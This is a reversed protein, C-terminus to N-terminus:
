KRAGPRIPSVPDQVTPERSSMGEPARRWKRTVGTPGKPVAPRGITEGQFVLQDQYCGGAKPQAGAGRRTHVSPGARAGGRKPRAGPGHPATQRRRQVVSLGVSASPCRCHFGVRAGRGWVGRMLVPHCSSRSKGFGRAIRDIRGMWGDQETVARAVRGRVESRESVSYMSDFALQAM